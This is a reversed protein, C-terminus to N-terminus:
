RLAPAGQVARPTVQARPHPANGVERASILGPVRRRVSAISEWHNRSMTKSELGKLVVRLELRAECLAGFRPDGGPGHIHRSMSIDGVHDTSTLNRQGIDGNGSVLGLLMAGLIM